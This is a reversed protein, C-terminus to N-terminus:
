ALLATLDIQAPFPETATFTGTVPADDVYGFPGGLHCATLGAGGAADLDIMWYHGIGADAYEDHKIRTDVRRTSPSQMEGALVVDAARLLGGESRVRTFAAMTVVVFDPARVTGPASPPVLQLDVDVDLLLKLEGPLQPDLQKCFAFLASQHLPVPKACMVIAGEQLEFCRDSDEPISAYEEVTLPGPLPQPPVYSPVPMASM